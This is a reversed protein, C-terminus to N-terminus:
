RIVIARIIQKDTYTHKESVIEHSGNWWQKNVNLAVNVIAPTINDIDEVGGECGKVMVRTEQDEIRELVKILERVTM